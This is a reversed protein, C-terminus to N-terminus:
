GAVEKPGKKQEKRPDTDSAKVIPSTLSLIQRSLRPHLGFGAVVEPPRNSYLILQKPNRVAEALEKWDEEPLVMVHDGREKCAEWEEWVTDLVQSLEFKQNWKPNDSIKHLLEEFDLEGVEEKTRPDLLKVPEKPVEIYRNPM